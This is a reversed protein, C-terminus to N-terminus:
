VEVDIDFDEMADIAEVKISIFVYSDTDAQKIEQETMDDVKIGISKLYEKQKTMNIEVIPDEKLLGEQVLENLFKKIENMLLCKNSYSNPVKGIYDDIIVKRVSNNIFDYTQVIKIKKFSKGKLQKDTTTLSTVGRAIRIAGATNIAIIKGADVAEGAAVNTIDPITTADTLKAYTISQAYPTGAILGAIRGCYKAKSIKEGGVEINDTHWEWIYEKDSPTNPSIVASVANGTGRVKEIFSIIKPNDSEIAEPYCLINFERNELQNLASETTGESSDIVCLVLKSPKYTVETIVGNDNKDQTNGLFVSKILKKNAESLDTPIDKEEKIETIGLSNTDKLIVAVIGRGARTQLRKTIERFKITIEPLGM